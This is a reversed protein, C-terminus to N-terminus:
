SSIRFFIETMFINIALYGVILSLLVQFSFSYFNAKKSFHTSVKKTVHKRLEFYCINYLYFAQM